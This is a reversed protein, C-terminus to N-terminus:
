RAKISNVVRDTLARLAADPCVSSGLATHTHAHKYVRVSRDQIRHLHSCVLDQVESDSTGCEFDDNGGEAKLETKATM